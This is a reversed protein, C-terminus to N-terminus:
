RDAASKRESDEPRESTLLELPSSPGSLEEMLMLMLMAKRKTRVRRNISIFERYIQLAKVPYRPAILKRPLRSVTIGAKARSRVKRSFFGPAFPSAQTQEPRPRGGGRARNFPAQMGSRAPKSTAERGCQSIRKVHEPFPPPPPLPM